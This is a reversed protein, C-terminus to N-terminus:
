RSSSLYTSRNIESATDTTKAASTTSMLISLISVTVLVLLLQTLRQYVRYVIAQAYTLTEILASPQNALGDSAQEAQSKSTASDDSPAVIVVRVLVQSGKHPNFNQSYVLKENFWVFGKQQEDAQDVHQCKTTTATTVDDSAGYVVRFLVTTHQVLTENPSALKTTATKPWCWRLVTSLGGALVYCIFWNRLLM